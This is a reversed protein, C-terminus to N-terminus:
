SYLTNFRYLFNSNIFILWSILTLNKFFELQITHSVSFYIGTEIWLVCHMLLIAIVPLAVVVVDLMSNTYFWYKFISYNNYIVINVNRHIRQNHFNLPCNLNTVRFHTYSGCRCRRVRVYRPMNYDDLIFTLRDM